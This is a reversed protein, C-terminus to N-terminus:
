TSDGGRGADAGEISSCCETIATSLTFFFFSNWGQEMKTGPKM